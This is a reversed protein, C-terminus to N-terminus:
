LRYGHDRHPRALRIEVAVPRPEVADDAMKLPVANASMRFLGQLTVKWHRVHQQRASGIEIGVHDDGAGVMMRLEALGQEAPDAAFEELVHGHRYQHRM